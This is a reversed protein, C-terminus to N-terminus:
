FVSPPGNIFGVKQLMEFNKMKLYNIIKFFILLFFKQNLKNTKSIALIFYMLYILILLSFLNLDRKNRDPNDSNTSFEFYLHRGSGIYDIYDSGTTLFFYSWCIEFSSVQSLM